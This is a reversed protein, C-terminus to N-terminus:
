WFPKVKGLFAIALLLAYLLVAWAMTLHTTRTVERERDRRPAM